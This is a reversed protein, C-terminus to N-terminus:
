TRLSTIKMTVVIEYSLFNKFTEIHTRSPRSFMKISRSFQKGECLAGGKKPPCLCKFAGNSDTTM